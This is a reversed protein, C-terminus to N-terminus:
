ERAAKMENKRAYMAEDARKFVDEYVFDRGETYLAYGIAASARDWFELSEDKSIKDVRENFTGMLEEVRDYDSGKLIVAFEDGGIRFVPSHEFTTCVLRCLNKIAENGKDHGYEDNIKKLDNLDVIAVGFQTDGRELGKIVKEVEKDYGTKNRIGTLADKIALESFQMAQKQSFALDQRLNDVTQASKVLDEVYNKMRVSMTSLAESLSELEDGTHLEPLNMVLVNPDREYRSKEEFEGAANEITSLPTIVHKRLWLIMITIFVLSLVITALLAIRLYHSRTEEIFELSIGATLLAVPTGDDKRVTVAGRYTNGYESKVTIFKIAEDGLFEAYIQPLLEAPFVFGIRDGLYPIPSDSVAAEGRKEAETLGSMLQIVDYNDGEKVPKTLAIHDLSYSERVKDFFASLEEFKESRTYTEGCKELDEADIHAEALEIIDSLNMEYQRMMSNQFVVFGIAGMTICLVITFVLCVNFIRRTLPKRYEKKPKGDLYLM